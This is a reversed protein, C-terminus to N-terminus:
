YSDTLTDFNLDPIIWEGGYNLCSYKDLILSKQQNTTLELHEM